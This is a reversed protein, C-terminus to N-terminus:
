FETGPQEHKVIKHYNPGGNDHSMDYRVMFRAVVKQGGITKMKPGYLPDEKCSISLRVRM